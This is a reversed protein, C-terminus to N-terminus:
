SFVKVMYEHSERFHWREAALVTAYGGHLEQWAMDRAAEVGVVGGASM